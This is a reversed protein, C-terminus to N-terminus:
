SWKSNGYFHELDSDAFNIYIKEIKQQFNTAIPMGNKSKFFLNKKLIPFEETNSSVNIIVDKGLKKSINKVTKIIESFQNPASFNYRYDVLLLANLSKWVVNRLVFYSNNKENQFFFYKDTEAFYRWQVFEKTRSFVVSNKENFEFNFNINEVDRKLIFNGFKESITKSPKPNQKKFFVKLLSFPRSVFIFKSAKGVIKEDFTLHIKMSIGSMNVDFHNESKMVKEALMNGFGKGRYQEKIIYDTGWAGSYEINNYLFKTGMLLFQGFIESENLLIFSNEIGNKQFPNAFFRWDFSKEIGKRSPYIEKNFAIVASLETNKPISLKM